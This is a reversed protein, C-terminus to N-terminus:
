GSQVESIRTSGLITSFLFSDNDTVSHYEAVKFSFSACDPYRFSWSQTSILTTVRKSYLYHLIFM